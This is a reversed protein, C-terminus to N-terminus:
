LKQDEITLVRKNRIQLIGIIKRTKVMIAENFKYSLIFKTNLLYISLKILDTFKNFTDHM